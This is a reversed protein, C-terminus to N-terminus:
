DSAADPDVIFWDADPPAPPGTPVPLNALFGTLRTITRDPQDAFAVEVEVRRVDPRPTEEVRLTYKWTVDALDVEGSRNGLPPFERQLRLETLRDRAVWHALTKDRLRAATSATQNLQGFAAMLGLAVIALAVLVELLTFGGSGRRDTRRV